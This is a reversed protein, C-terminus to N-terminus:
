AAEKKLIPIPIQYDEALIEYFNKIYKKKLHEYQRVGLEDNGEKAMNIMENITDILSLQHAVKDERKVTDKGM